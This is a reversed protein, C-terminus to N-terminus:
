WQEEKNLRGCLWSRFRSALLGQQQQHKMHGNNNSQIYIADKPGATQIM